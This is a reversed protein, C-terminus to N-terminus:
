TMKSESYDSGDDTINKSTIQTGANNYLKMADTGTTDVDIKNRLAMYMLMLGTRLTPTSAPVGVGLESIITDLADNVESEVEEDWSSNWPVASLGAGTAGIAAAITEIADVSAQTASLLNVGDAGTIIDLDAQATALDVATASSDTGRMATTPIADILLDIRGGDELDGKVESTDAAIAALQSSNSDLEARNEAATPATGAVDPTTTNAGDTGRM